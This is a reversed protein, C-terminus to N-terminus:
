IISTNIYKYPIIFLARLHVLLSCKECFVDGIFLSVLPCINIYGVVPRYNLEPDLMCHSGYSYYDANSSSYHYPRHRHCYRDSVANHSFHLDLKQFRMMM